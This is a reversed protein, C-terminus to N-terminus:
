KARDGLGVIRSGGRAGIGDDFPSLVVLYIGKNETSLKRLKCLPKEFPSSRRMFSRVLEHKRAPKGLLASHGNALELIYEIKTSHPAM